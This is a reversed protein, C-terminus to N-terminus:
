ISPRFPAYPQISECLVRYRTTWSIVAVHLILLYFSRSMIFSSNSMVGPSTFDLAALVILPYAIASKPSLPSCPASISWYKLLFVTVRILPGMGNIARQFARDPPPPLALRSHSMAPPSPDVMSSLGKSRTRVMATHEAPLYEPVNSDTGDPNDDQVTANRSPSSETSDQTSALTSQALKSTRMVPRQQSSSSKRRYGTRPYPSPSEAVSIRPNRGDGHTQSSDYDTNQDQAARIMRLIEETSPREDPNISLLRKLFKYLMDPLDNRGRRQDENFGPWAVIEAKLKEVDENEENIDDANIYPLGGFSLFHVIMGVSFVDSKVTFNGYLNRPSHRRLVEPACYSVTGTAGTGTREANSVQVEGFDSLLVRIRGSVQNLLCNQPKIDRHIFGHSHLHHLGSTIDKFFSYIEEFGIRRPGTRGEFDEMSGKSRRRMREKMELPSLTSKNEGLVYRHLDGQNCYQQLIFACPVSPGFNSIQFDELWVHRYSVLNPHSLNQLTQVEILVKELWAHDDGVPVRKCAFQGLNVGDIAHTVLLVVGKGGRGLEREEKFFSRFYDPSFARRSIGQGAAPESAVFEAGPPTTIVNSARRDLTASDIRRPSSPRSTSEQEPLTHQLMRFYAPDMYTTSDPLNSGHDASLPPEERFSRHCTPCRTHDSEDTPPTSRLSLQRSKQNYLVVVTDHRLVVQRSSDPQYPILSM